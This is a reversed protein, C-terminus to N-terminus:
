SLSRVTSTHPDIGVAFFEHNGSRKNKPLSIVRRGQAEDDATAGVGIMVDAQAPIGTNSSDVDGMDLVAKGSASDGAQTVSVVLCDNEKGLRRAATAAKELQQTFGADKSGGVSMNRLQDIVLVDPKYENMLRQIERPSGPALGALVVNGYGAEMAKEHAAAPDAHVDHKTMDTLRCVIRLATDVVPEENGVYLVKLNQRLFGYVMNVVMLTKGMEPRAFVVIHHGRLVGGDLRENLSKPYVKILSGNDFNDAVLSNVDYGQLIGSDGEDSSAPTCTDSYEEILELAKEPDDGAVLASALRASAAERKVAMFDHLVNAPSVELSFLESILTAFLEKHKPNSLSRAVDNTIVEKDVCSAAVDRDYYSGAHKLVVAGQESIDGDLKDAVSEFASRSKLCSSIITRESM